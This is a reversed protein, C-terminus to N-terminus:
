LQFVHLYKVTRLLEVEEAFPREMNKVWVYLFDGCPGEALLIRGGELEDVMGPNERLKKEQMLPLIARLNAIETRIYGLGKLGDNMEIRQLRSLSDM